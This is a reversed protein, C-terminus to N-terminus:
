EEVKESPEPDESVVIMSPDQLDFAAMEFTTSMTIAKKPCVAECTGCFICRDFRFEPKKNTKTKTSEVMTIATAPCDRSCLGCGTCKEIDHEIKGRFREPRVGPEFPYKITATKRSVVTKLIEGEMAGIRPM